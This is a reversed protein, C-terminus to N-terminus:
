FQLWKQSGHKILPLTQTSFDWMSVRQRRLGQIVLLTRGQRKESILKVDFQQAILTSEDTSNNDVVIVELRDKPFDSLFISELCMYITKEANFTPIVLTVEISSM